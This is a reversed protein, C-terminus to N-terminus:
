APVPWQAVCAPFLVCSQKRKWASCSMADEASGPLWITTQMPTKLLHIHLWDFM